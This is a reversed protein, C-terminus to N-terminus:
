QFDCPQLEIPVGHPTRAAARRWADRYRGLMPPDAIGNDEIVRELAALWRAYGDSSSGEAAAAALRPLGRGDM